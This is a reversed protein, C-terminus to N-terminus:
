RHSTGVRMPIKANCAAKAIDIDPYVYMIADAGIEKLVNPKKLIEEKDIFHDIFTSAEIIPRTYSKGIFYIELNEITSKLIGALPLTLVVDGLNDTRSIIIKKM